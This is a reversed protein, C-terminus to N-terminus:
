KKGGRIEDLVAKAGPVNKKVLRELTELARQQVAPQENFSALYKLGRLITPSKLAGEELAKFATERDEDLLTLGCLIEVPWWHEPNEM